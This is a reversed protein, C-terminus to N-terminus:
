LDYTNRLIIFDRDRDRGLDRGIKTETETEASGLDVQRPRGSIEVLNVM